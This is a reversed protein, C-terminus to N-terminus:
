GLQRSCWSSSSRLRTARTRRLGREVRYRHWRHGRRAVLGPELRQALPGLDRGPGGRSFQIARRQGVVDADRRCRPRGAASRARVAAREVYRAGDGVAASRRRHDHCLGGPDADGSQAAPGVSRRGDVVALIGITAPTLILGTEIASYGRATQLYVSVVFSLGLLVLWQINQTVLGLNSVRNQFMRPALLPEKGAREMSRIHRFFLVLLLPASRARVALAALHRGRSDPGNLRRRLGAVAAYGATRARRCSASWWSSCAPPLCSPGSFTSVYTQRGTRRADTIRRALYLIVLVLLVQVGFALRWSVATTIVGGILPGAASGIGAAASIAGFARARSKVDDTFVTALIYVPPILLATGIGQGLSYGLVLGPLGQSVAAVLAGAGYVLLGIRFCFKRGWIDTLKSGPIMLAAMTLTFATIATQVGSVNTGLDTAISSIAVNM